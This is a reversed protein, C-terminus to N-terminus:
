KILLNLEELTKNYYKLFEERTASIFNNDELFHKPFMSHTTDLNWISISQNPFIMVVWNNYDKHKLYKM